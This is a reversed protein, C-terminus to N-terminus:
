SLKAFTTLPGEYEFLAYSITGKKGSGAYAYSKASEGLLLDTDTTSWGVRLEHINKEDDLLKVENEAL